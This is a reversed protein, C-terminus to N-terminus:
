FHRTPQLHVPNAKVGGLIALARVQAQSHRVGTDQDKLDTGGTQLGVNTQQSSQPSSTFIFVRIFMKLQAM